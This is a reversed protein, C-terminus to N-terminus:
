IKRRLDSITPIKTVILPARDIKRIVVVFWSTAPELGAPGAKRAVRPFGHGATRPFRRAESESPALPESDQQAAKESCVCVLFHRTPSRQSTRVTRWCFRSRWR